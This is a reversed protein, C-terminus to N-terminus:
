GSRVPSYNVLVIGAGVMLAAAVFAPRLPDSLVLVGFAVGFMPAMFSFVALRGALYRRLLWFWTLYSAFAVVAGQYVLSALAIFSLRSVGTEGMLRSAVLLLVSSVALQYFLTKSASVRALTSARILVTTSAWLFAAVVGCLDGIATAGGSAAFGEGFALVIGAFSVLVGLWQRLHMREGPVLWHLGLATLPPTLYIFVIMRSATTHALGAYIFIFETGFLLGAVIGPWLTGDRSFLATGSLRAWAFLLLTASISRIAAQMVLSVDGAALKIMVQQLGWSATLLLMLSFATADLARRHDPM